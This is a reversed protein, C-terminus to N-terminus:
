GRPISGPDCFDHIRNKSRLLSGSGLMLITSYQLIKIQSPRPWKIGSLSFAFRQIERSVKSAQNPWVNKRPPPFITSGEGRTSSGAVGKPKLLNKRKLLLNRLKPMRQSSLLFERYPLRLGVSVVLPSFM